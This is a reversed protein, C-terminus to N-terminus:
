GSKKGPLSKTALGHPEAVFLKCPNGTTSTYPTADLASPKRRCMYAPSQKTPRLVDLGETILEQYAVHPRDCSGVRPMPIIKAKYIPHNNGTTFQNRILPLQTNCSISPAQLACPLSSFHMCLHSSLLLISTLSTPHSPTSQVCRASSLSWHRARTLVTIFRRTGYFTPYIKILQTVAESSPRQDMPNTLAMALFAKMGNVAHTSGTKVHM